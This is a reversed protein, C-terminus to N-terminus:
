QGGQDPQHRRIMGSTGRFVLVARSGHDSGAVGAGFIFPSLGSTTIEKLPDQAPYNLSM